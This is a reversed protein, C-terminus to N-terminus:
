KRSTPKPTDRCEGLAREIGKASLDLEYHTVTSRQLETVDADVREQHEHIHHEVTQISAKIADIETQVPRYLIALFIGLFAVAVGVAAWIVIWPTRQSKEIKLEIGSVVNAAAVVDKELADVKSQLTAVVINIDATM